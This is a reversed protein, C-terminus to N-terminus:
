KHGSYVDVNPSVYATFLLPGLVSEQLVESTFNTIVASQQGTKLFQKRNTVYSDILKLAVDSVRFDDCDSFSSQNVFSTLHASIKLSM